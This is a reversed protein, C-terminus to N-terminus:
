LQTIIQFGDLNPISVLIMLILQFFMNLPALEIFTPLQVSVPQFKSKWTSLETQCMQTISQGM